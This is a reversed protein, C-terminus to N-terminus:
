HTWDTLINVDTTVNKSIPGFLGGKAGRRDTMINKVLQGSPGEKPGGEDMTVNKVLRDTVM